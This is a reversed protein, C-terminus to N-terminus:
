KEFAALAVLLHSDNNKLTLQKDTQCGTFLLDPKKKKKQTNVTVVGFYFTLYYITIIVIDQTKTVTTTYDNFGTVELYQIETKVTVFYFFHSSVNALHINAIHLAKQLFSVLKSQQIHLFYQIDLLKSSKCTFKLTLQLCLVISKQPKGDINYLQATM